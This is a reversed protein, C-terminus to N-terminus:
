AGLAPQEKLPNPSADGREEGRGPNSPYLPIRQGLRWALEGPLMGAHNQGSGAHRNALSPRPPTLPVPHPPAAQM